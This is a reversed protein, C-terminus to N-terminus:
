RPRIPNIQNKPIAKSIFIIDSKDDAILMSLKDRKNVFQDANTYSFKLVGKFVKKTVNNIQKLKCGDNQEEHVECPM